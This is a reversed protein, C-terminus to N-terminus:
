AEWKNYIIKNNNSFYKWYLVTMYDHVLLLIKMKQLMVTKSTKSLRFSTNKFKNEADALLPKSLHAVQKWLGLCVIFKGHLHKQLQRSHPRTIFTQVMHWLPISANASICMKCLSTDVSRQLYGIMKFILSWTNTSPKQYNNTTLEFM